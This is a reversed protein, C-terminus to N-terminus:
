NSQRTIFVQFENKVVEIDSLILSLNNEIDKRSHQSSDDQGIETM